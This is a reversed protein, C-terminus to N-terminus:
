LAYEHRSSLQSAATQPRPGLAPLDDECPRYDAVSSDMQDQMVGQPPYDASDHQIHDMAQLNFDIAGDPLVEFDEEQHHTYTKVHRDPLTSM